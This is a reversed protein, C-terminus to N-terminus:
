ALPSELQDYLKDAIALIDQCGPSDASQEFPNCEYALAAAITEDWIVTGLLQTKLQNELIQTIDVSLAHATDVGNIVFWCAAPKERNLHPELSAILRELAAHSAADPRVVAVILNAMRLAQEQYVNSGAPTDIILTDHEGLALEGLHQALWHPNGELQHEFAHLQRPESEGFALLRTNAYGTQVLDRWSRRDLSAQCIGAVQPHTGLHQYQANQPDLELVMARTDASNLLIALLSALTSRGVGGRTSVIAIIQATVQPAPTPQLHQAAQAQRERALDHLLTRLSPAAAKEPAGTDGPVLPPSAPEVSTPAPPQPIAPAPAPTESFVRAVEIERYRDARAGFKRMLNDVDDDDSPQM